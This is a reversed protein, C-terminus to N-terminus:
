SALVRAVQSELAVCVSQSIAESQTPEQGKNVAARCAEVHLNILPFDAPDARTEILTCLSDALRSVTPYGYLTAMGKLDHAVLVLRGIEHVDTQVKQWAEQLRGLDTEIWMARDESLAEIAQEARDAESLPASLILTSEPTDAQGVIEEALDQLADSEAAPRADAMDDKDAVALTEGQPQYGPIVRSIDVVPEANATSKTKGGGLRSLLSQLM